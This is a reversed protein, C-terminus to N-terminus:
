WGATRCGGVASQVSGFRSIVHTEYLIVLALIPGIGPITKLRAFAQPDDIKAHQILYLEIGRLQEDLHKALALDSQVAWQVSEDSFREAVGIRHRHYSLKKEPAAVNYQTCTNTVHALAQGRQRVLWMRRRLLDRTARMEQPYVYAQPLGGYASRAVVARDVRILRTM